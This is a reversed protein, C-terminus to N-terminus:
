SREGDGKGFSLPSSVCSFRQVAIGLTAQKGEKSPNPFTNERTYDSKVIM